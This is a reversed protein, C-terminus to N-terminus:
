KELVPTWTADPNFTTMAKTLTATNPGLNKQYVIGSHSVLFTMVGSSKYSAPWAVIAFGHVLKGGVMYSREGGRADPGQGQLIRYYYGHFPIPKEDAARYGEEEARAVLPGLPSPTKGKAVPWYLGDKKGKSSRFKQAFQIGGGTRDKAGYEFQADVVNHLVELVMLENTGIRRNLLEEKGALTDFHWTTGKRVIPIPFAWREDGLIAAAWEKNVVMMRCQQQALKVFRARGNRDEVPDGSSLIEHSGPGLIAALAAMDNRQAAQLLSEVAADPTKFVKQPEAASADTLCAFMWAMALLLTALCASGRMSRRGTM